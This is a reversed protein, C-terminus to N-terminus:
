VHNKHPKAAHGHMKATNKAAHQRAKTQAKLANQRAKAPAVPHAKKVHKASAVGACLALAVCLVRFKKM